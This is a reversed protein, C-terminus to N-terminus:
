TRRGNPFVLDSPTDLVRELPCHSFKRGKANASTTIHIGHIGPPPQSVSVEIKIGEKATLIKATGIKQVQANVIDAHASKPTGQGLVATACLLAPLLTLKNFSM